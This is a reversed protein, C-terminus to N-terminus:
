IRHIEVHCYKLNASSQIGKSNTMNLFVNGFDDHNIEIHCVEYKVSNNQTLTEEDIDHTIKVTM